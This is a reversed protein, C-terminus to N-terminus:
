TGASVPAPSAGGGEEKKKRVAEIAYALKAVSENLVTAFAAIPAQFAGAVMGLLQERSPMEALAKVGQADIVSGELFGGKVELFKDRTDRKWGLLAKAAGVAGTVGTKEDKAYVVGVPGDFLKELKNADYGLDAFSRKAIANKVVHLKAGKAHLKARLDYIRDSSLGRYQVVVGGAVDKFRRSLEQRMLTKLQKAM